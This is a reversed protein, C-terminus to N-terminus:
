EYVTCGGHGGRSHKSKENVESNSNSYLNENDSYREVCFSEVVSNTTFQGGGAENVGELVVRGQCMMNINECSSELKVEDGCAQDDDEGDDRGGM